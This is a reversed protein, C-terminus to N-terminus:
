PVVEFNIKNSEVMPGDCCALRRQIVLEYKGVPLTDYWIDAEGSPTDDALVLWDAVRPENPNLRVPEPLNEQQCIHEQQAHLMEWSRDNMYPVLTSLQMDDARDAGPPAPRPVSPMDSFRARANASAAPNVRNRGTSM